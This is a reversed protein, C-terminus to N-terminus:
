IAESQVPARTLVPTKPEPQRGAYAQKLAHYAVWCSIMSALADAAAAPFRVLKEVGKLRALPMFRGEFLGPVLQWFHKTRQVHRAVLKRLWSPDAQEERRLTEALRVREVIPLTRLHNDVLIHTIAQGVIRQQHSRLRNMISDCPESVHSANKALLISNSSADHTLFDTCVITEIFADEWTPLAQPLYINRAVEARICYLQGSFRIGDQKSQFNAPMSTRYGSLGCHRAQDVAVVAESHTSLAKYMNWLTTRQDIRINGDMLFCYQSTKTSLGHVFLNWAQAKETEPVEVTRCTFVDRCPHLASQEDCFWKAILPTNDTCGSAICIIECRLKRFRLEGFISQGFLSKLAAALTDEENRCLIGISIHPNKIPMKTNM